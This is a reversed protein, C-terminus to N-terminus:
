YRLQNERQALWCGLSDGASAKTLFSDGRGESQSKRNHCSECLTQWNRPDWFLVQDGRHPIIHDTVSGPQVTGRSACSWVDPRVADPRRDGCLPHRVRWARSAKDWRKGYGRAHASGREVEIRRTHAPCHGSKVLVPCGAGCPRM